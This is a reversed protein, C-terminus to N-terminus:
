QKSRVAAKVQGISVEGLIDRYHLTVLRAIIELLDKPYKKARGTAYFPLLLNYPLKVLYSLRPRLKGGQKHLMGATVPVDDLELWLSHGRVAELLSHGILEHDRIGDKQSEAIAHFFTGKFDEWARRRDSKATATRHAGALNKRDRSIREHVLVELAHFATSALIYKQEGIVVRRVEEYDPIARAPPTFSLEQQDIEAAAQGYTARRENWGKLYGLSVDRDHSVLLPQKDLAYSLEELFNWYEEFTQTTAPAEDVALVRRLIPMRLSRQCRHDREDWPPLGLLRNQAEETVKLVLEFEEIVLELLKAKDAGPPLSLELVECVSQLETPSLKGIVDVYLKSARKPDNYRCLTRKAVPELIRRHEAAQKLSCRELSVRLRNAILWALLM